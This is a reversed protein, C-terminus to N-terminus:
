HDSEPSRPACILFDPRMVWWKRPTCGSITHKAQTTQVSTSLLSILVMAVLTRAVILRMPNAIQRVDLRM